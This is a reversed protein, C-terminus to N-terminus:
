EVALPDKQEGCVTVKGLVTAGGGGAEDPIEAIPLGPSTGCM